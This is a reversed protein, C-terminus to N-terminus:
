FSMIQSSFPTERDVGLKALSNVMGNISRRVRKFEVLLLSSLFRIESLFFHFRWAGPEM